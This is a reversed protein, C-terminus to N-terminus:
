RCSTTRRWRRSSGTTPRTGRLTASRPRTGATSSSCSPRATRQTRRRRRLSPTLGLAPPTPPLSPCVPPSHSPPHYLCTTPPHTPCGPPTHTPPPSALHVLGGHCAPLVGGIPTHPSSHGGGERQWPITWQPAQWAVFLEHPLCWPFAAMHPYPKSIASELAAHM